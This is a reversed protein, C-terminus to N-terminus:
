SYILPFGTADNESITPIECTNEYDRIEGDM